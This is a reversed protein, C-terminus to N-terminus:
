GHIRDYFGAALLIADGGAFFELYFRYRSVDAALHHEVLDQEDTIAFRYRDPLRENGACRDRGLDYGVPASVLDPNELHTAALVILLVLTVALVVSFQRDLRDVCLPARVHCM